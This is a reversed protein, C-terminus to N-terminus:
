LEDAADSTYLLCPNWTPEVSQLREFLDATDDYYLEPAESTSFNVGGKINLIPLVKYNGNLTGSFRRYQTGKVTGDESYYGLSAAFTGKENGGTFSLYHDQTFAPDKYVEDRLTTGYDKFVIQRGSIPDTMQKWGEQLLDENGDLYRISFQEPNNQGYVAGYGRMGDIQSLSGGSYQRGLRGYKIYNEADM